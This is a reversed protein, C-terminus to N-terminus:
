QQTRTLMDKLNPPIGKITLTETEPDYFVREDLLQADFSIKLGGGAGIYKRLKQITTKDTPFQDELEYGQEQTYEIFSAGENGNPLENSLETMVIDEGGKAQGSCYDAVQKKLNVTEAQDLEQACCFDSIAQTLVKNQIKADVLVEAQLFDLFFDSVKRGVRGKLFTIYRNNKVLTDKATLDIRAAVDMKSIDLYDTSCIDLGETAKLSQMVPIICLLLYDTALSQYEAIILLGSDGFPYKILESHLQQASSKAFDYYNLNSIQYDSLLSKVSSDEKFVAYGKSQKTAFTRHLEHILSETSAGSPLLDHRINLVLEGTEENRVLQHAAINKIISTM